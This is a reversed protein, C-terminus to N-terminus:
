RRFYVDTPARTGDSCKTLPGFVVVVAILILLGKVFSKTGKAIEAFSKGILLWGVFAVVGFGILWRVIVSASGPSEKEIEGLIYGAILVGGVFVMPPWFSPREPAKKQDQQELPDSM